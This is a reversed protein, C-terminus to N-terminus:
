PADFLVAHAFVALKKPQHDRRPDDAVGFAPHERGLVTVM